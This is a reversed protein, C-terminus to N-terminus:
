RCAQCTGMETGQCQLKGPFRNGRAEPQAWEGMNQRGDLQQACSQTGSGMAQLWPWLAPLRRCLPWWQPWVPWFPLPQQVDWDHADQGQWGPGRDKWTGKRDLSFGLHSRGWQKQHRKELDKNQRRIFNNITKQGKGQRPAGLLKARYGEWRAM